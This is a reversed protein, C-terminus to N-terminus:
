TGAHLAASASGIATRRLSYSYSDPTTRAARSLPSSYIAALPWTKLLQATAAAQARGTADLPVDMRGRFIGERNAATRGHRVLVITTPTAM